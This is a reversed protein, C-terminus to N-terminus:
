DETGAPVARIVLGRAPSPVTDQRSESWEARVILALSGHPTREFRLDFAVTDPVTIRTGSVELTSQSSLVQAVAELHQAYEERPLEDDHVAVIWEHQPRHPGGHPVPKSPPM